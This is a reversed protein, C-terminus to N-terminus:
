KGGKPKRGGIKKGGSNLQPIVGSTQAMPREKTVFGAQRVYATGDAGYLV